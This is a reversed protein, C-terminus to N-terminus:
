IHAAKIRKLELEVLLVNSQFKRKSIIELIARLIGVPNRLIGNRKATEV